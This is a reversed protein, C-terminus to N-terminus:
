AIEMGVPPSALWQHRLGNKFDYQALREIVDYLKDPLDDPYGRLLHPGIFLAQGRMLVVPQTAEVRKAPCKTVWPSLTLETPELHVDCCWPCFWPM